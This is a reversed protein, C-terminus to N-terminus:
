AKHDGIRLKVVLTRAIEEIGASIPFYGITSPFGPLDIEDVKIPLIYGAGKEKLMREQASRREHITWESNLYEMSVFIVCFRARKSYIEYFFEVLDKGWLHEPYFRDYFVSFGAGRVSNALEEALTRETGAFSIAVDFTNPLTRVATAGAESIWRRIEEGRRVEPRDFSPLFGMGVSEMSAQSALLDELGQCFGKKHAAFYLHATHANSDLPSDGRQQFQIHRWFCPEFDFEPCSDFERIDLFRFASRLEVSLPPHKPRYHITWGKEYENRKIWTLVFGFTEDETEKMREPTIASTHGDGQYSDRPYNRTGKGFFYGWGEPQALVFGCNQLHREAQSLQKYGEELARGFADVDLDQAVERAYCESRLFSCSQRRFGLYSLFDPIQIGSTSFTKPCVHLSFAVDEKSWALRALAIEAESTSVKRLIESKLSEHLDRAPM